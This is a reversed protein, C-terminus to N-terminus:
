SSSREAGEDLEGLAGVAQQVDGVDRRALPGRRDLLHELLALLELDAHDLDVALAAADAQPEGVVRLDRALRGLLERRRSRRGRRRAAAAAAAVAAPAAAAAAPGRGRGRRRAAVAVASRPPRPARRGRDRVAALGGGHGLVLEGLQSEPRRTTVSRM